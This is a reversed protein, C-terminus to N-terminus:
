TFKARAANVLAAVENASFSREAGARDPHTERLLSRFAGDVARKAAERKEVERQEVEEQRVEAADGDALVQVVDAWSESFAEVEEMEGEFPVVGAFAPVVQKAPDVEEGATSGHMLNYGRPHLTDNKIIWATENTKADAARCRMLVDLRFSKRGHKKFANRVLQWWARAGVGDVL